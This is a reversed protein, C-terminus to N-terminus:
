MLTKLFVYSIKTSPNFPNPYNQTLEYGAIVVSIEVTSSYEFKGDIDIQKLRYYFKEGGLLSNDAFSYNKTSNSNGSGSVFGIKEWENILHAKESFKSVM